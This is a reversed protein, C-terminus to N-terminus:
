ELSRGQKWYGMLTLGKRDLGCENIFFRRIDMVAASEGAVWAYFESQKASALEWLIQSDLDLEELATFEQLNGHTPPLNALERAALIM